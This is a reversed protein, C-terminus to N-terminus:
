RDTEQGEEEEDGGGGEKEKDEGHRDLYKVNKEKSVKRRGTQKGVANGKWCNWERM